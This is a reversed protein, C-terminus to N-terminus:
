AAAPMAPDQFVDMFVNLCQQLAIIKRVRHEVLLSLFTSVGLIVNTLDVYLPAL